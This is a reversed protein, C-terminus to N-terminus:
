FMARADPAPGFSIGINALPLLTPGLPVPHMGPGIPISVLSLEHIAELM